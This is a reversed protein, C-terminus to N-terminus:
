NTLFLACLCVCVECLSCLVSVWFTLCITNRGLTINGASLFPFHVCYACKVDADLQNWAQRVNWNLGHVTGPPFNSFPHYIYVAYQRCV